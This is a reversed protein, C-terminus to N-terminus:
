PSATEWERRIKHLRRIYFLQIIPEVRINTGGSLIMSIICLAVGIYGNALCGTVGWDRRFILGYATMGMFLYLTVMAFAYPHLAPGEYTFGFLEFRVNEGAIAGWLMLPISLVAMAIFVWGFIKIWVPVLSRRSLVGQTPATLDSTPSEYPNTDKPVICDLTM